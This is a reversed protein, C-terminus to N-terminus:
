GDGNPHLKPHPTLAIPPQPKRNRSGTFEIFRTHENEIGLNRDNTTM